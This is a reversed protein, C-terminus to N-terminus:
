DLLTPPVCWPHENSLAWGVRHFVLSGRGSLTLGQGGRGTCVLKTQMSAKKRSKWWREAGGMGSVCKSKLHNIFILPSAIIFELTLVTIWWRKMYKSNEWRISNCRIATAIMRAILYGNCMVMVVASSAVRIWWPSVPTYFMRYIRVWIMM